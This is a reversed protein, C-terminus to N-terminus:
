SSIRSRKIIRLITVIDLHDGLNNRIAKQIQQPTRGQKSLAEIYRNRQYRLYASYYRLKPMRAGGDHHHRADEDESIRRWVELWADMGVIEAVEVWIRPLGIKELEHLRPDASKKERRHSFNITGCIELYGGGWTPTGSLRQRAGMGQAPQTLDLNLQANKTKGTRKEIM